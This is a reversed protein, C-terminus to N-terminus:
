RGMAELLFGGAILKQRPDRSPTYYLVDGVRKVRGNDEVQGTTTPQGWTEIYHQVYM